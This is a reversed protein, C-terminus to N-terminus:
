AVSHRAAADVKESRSGLQALPAPRREGRAVAVRRSSEKLVRSRYGLVREALGIDASTDRVDGAQPAIRNVTIERGAVESLVDIAHSLSVTSGRRHQFTGGIAAETEAAARTAGILTASSTCDRTQDGGYLDIPVGDLLRRCFTSFAM